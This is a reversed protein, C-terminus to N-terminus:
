EWAFWNLRLSQSWGGDVDVRRINVVCSSASINRVTATFTDNVASYAPDNNPTLVIRPTTSFAPSFTITVTAFSGAASGVTAQGALFKTFVTGGNLNIKGAVRTQGPATINLDKAATIALEQLGASDDFKIENVRGDTGSSKITSVQSNGPLSYPPVNAANYLSGIIIPQDPDGQLFSVLVEDGVRPLFLMSHSAGAAPTAVRIWASSNEDRANHRDWHFQVKVRAYQDTYTPVSTPGTVVATNPQAQPRPTILPPVFTTGAPIVEFENGYYFTNVGGVVRFFGAHRVNVVTYLAGVGSPTSDSLSFTHGPRLDPASSSGTMLVREVDERGQRVRALATAIASTPTAGFEFNEGVGSSTITGTPVLAPRKFDYGRVISRLTTQHSARQFTRIYEAGAPITITPNNGYYPISAGGPANYATTADGLILAPAANNYDFFYFIGENELLRNLFDLSTENYQVINERAAYTKTLRAEAPNASVASYVTAIVDPISKAQHIKYDTTFDLTALLPELRAIFLRNNADVSSYEFATILGTYRTTKGNRAFELRGTAGIRTAPDIITGTATGQIVYVSPKSIGEVGSYGTVTGYAAGDIFFRLTPTVANTPAIQALREFALAPQDTIPQITRQFNDYAGAGLDDIQSPKVAGAAIKDTTVAANAIKDTTVANSSLKDATVAGTALMTVSIAGATVSSATAATIAYPSPTIKQRPSLTTFTSAGNTKVSTYLWRDSGNFVNGFDLVVSFLGNTVPVAVLSATPGQQNIGGSSDFIAFNFDYRGNAPVGNVTLQGQYTFATGQALISKTTLLFVAALLFIQIRTKVPSTISPKTTVSAFSSSLDLCNAPTSKKPANRM